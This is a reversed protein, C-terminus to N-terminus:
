NIIIYRNRDKTNEISFSIKGNYYIRIVTDGEEDGGLDEVFAWRDLGLVEKGREKSVPFYFIILDSYFLIFVCFYFYLFVYM